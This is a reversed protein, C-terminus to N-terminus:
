CEEENEIYFRCGEDIWMQDAIELAEEEDEAMIEYTVVCEATVTYKKM